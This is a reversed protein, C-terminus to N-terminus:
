SLLRRAAMVLAAALAATFPVTMVWSLLIARLLRMNIAAIGRGFGVGIVAGVLIHTTSVPIGLKSGILITVAASFAAAFGSSATLETIERGVTRMVKYGYSALGIVIGVVGILLVGTPVAVQATIGTRLAQFVVAVPGVANAVDNSGHAFALTCAALVQLGGFVAETRRVREALPAPADTTTRRVIPLAILAAIVGITTAILGAATLSLDVHLPGSGRYLIALALLAVNFGVLLPGFTRIRDVPDTAGLIRGRIFGFTQYAAWMSVIPSLIWAIGVEAVESGVLAPPGGIALGTGIVAGVICHTTSVPWGMFSAVHLWIAGAILCATMSASLLLVDGGFADLSVLGQSITETVRGGALFAGSAEFVIALILAARLSLAGSGVSTGMANAVDNAGINWALYLGSLVAIAMIVSAADM